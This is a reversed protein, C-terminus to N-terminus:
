AMPEECRTPEFSAYAHAVIGELQRIVENCTLCEPFRVELGLVISGFEQDLKTAAISLPGLAETSCAMGCGRGDPHMLLTSITELLMIEDESVLRGAKLFFVLNAIANDPSLPGELATDAGVADVRLFGPIDAPVITINRRPRCHPNRARITATARTPVRGPEGTSSLGAIFGIGAHGVVRGTVLGRRTLRRSEKREQDPRGEGECPVDFRRTESEEM